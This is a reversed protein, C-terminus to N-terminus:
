AGHTVEDAMLAQVLAAPRDAEWRDVVDSVVHRLTEPPATLLAALRSCSALTYEAIRTRIEVEPDDTRGLLQRYLRLPNRFRQLAYDAQRPYFDNMWETLKEASSAARKARDVERRVFDRAAEEILV